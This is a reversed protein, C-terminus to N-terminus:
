FPSSRISFHGHDCAPPCLPRSAVASGLPGLHSEMPALLSTARSSATCLHPVSTGPCPLPACVRASRSPAPMTRLSTPLWDACSPHAQAQLLTCLAITFGRTMCQVSPSDPVPRSMLCRTPKHTRFSRGEDLSVLGRLECCACGGHRSPAVLGVPSQGEQWIGSCASDVARGERECHTAAADSRPELVRVEAPRGLKGLGSMDPPGRSPSQLLTAGTASGPGTSPGSHIGPLWRRLSEFPNVQALSDTEMPGKHRVSSLPLPPPVRGPSPEYGVHRCTPTESLPEGVRLGLPWPCRRLSGIGCLAVDGLMPVPSATAWPTDHQCQVPVDLLPRKAGPQGTTQVQLWLGVGVGLSGTDLAQPGGLPPTKPTPPRRYVVHVRGQEAEQAALGQEVPEIFFEEEEMRILGAQPCLSLCEFKMCPLPCPEPCCRGGPGLEQKARITWSKRSVRLLVGALSGCQATWQVGSSLAAESAARLTRTPFPSCLRGWLTTRPAPCWDALKASM